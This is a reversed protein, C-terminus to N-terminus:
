GLNGLITLIADLAKDVERGDPDAQEPKLAEVNEPGSWVPEILGRGGDALVEDFAAFAQDTQALRVWTPNAPTTPPAAAPTPGVNLHMGMLQRRFQTIASSRGDVLSRDFSVIDTAGDFTLGRRRLASAGVMCWVDDVIVTTSRIQLPRGSFGIPHFALFRGGAAGALAGVATARAAYGQAAFANFHPPYDLEKSVALIVRLGPRQALRALLADVLDWSSAPVDPVDTGYATSAFAPTEIYILDRAHAIARALAWQADRRGHHASYCERKFHAFVEPDNPMPPGSPNPAPLWPPLTAVFAAWDDPLTALTNSDIVSKLLPTECDAAITQLVAGATSPTVAARTINAPDWDDNALAAIRPWTFQYSNSGPDLESGVFLLRTRRIAAHALDYALADAVRVGTVHLEPGGAQGPNGLRYDATLSERTLRGGTLVGSWTDGPPSGPGGADPPTTQIRLALMSERRAMSPYYPAERPSGEGLLLNAVKAADAWASASVTGATGATPATGIGLIPAHCTGLFGPGTIVTGIANAAAPGASAVPPTGSPVAVELGGFLRPQARTLMPRPAVLLDFHLIPNAPPQDGFPSPLVLQTRGSVAGGDGPGPPPVIASAGDGRRLTSQVDLSEGTIFRRPFARVHADVPLVGAAIELLVDTTTGIFAASLPSTASRLRGTQVAGFGQPAASAAPFATWHAPPGPTSPITFDTAIEPSVLYGEYPLSTGGGGPLATTLIQEVSALVDVGDALYTILVDDRVRPAPEAATAPDVGPVQEDPAAVPRAAQTRNGLLHYDLDVACVRLFDLPLNPPPAGAPLPPRPFPASSLTGVTAWGLRINPSGPAPMLSAGAALEVLETGVPTTAGGQVSIQLGGERWAGGHPTVIHVRVVPPTVGASQLEALFQALQQNLSVDFVNGVAALADFVGPTLLDAFAALVALPDVILGRRDHFSIVSGAPLLDAPAIEEVAQGAVPGAIGAGQIAITHPVPRLSRGGVGGYRAAYLRELRLHAQPHMRVLAAPGALPDGAVNTLRAAQSHYSLVGGFPAHCSGVIGLTLSDWHYTLDAPSADSWGPALVPAAIGLAGIGNSALNQAADAATIM